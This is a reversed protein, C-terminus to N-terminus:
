NISFTSLIPLVSSQFGETWINHKVSGGIIIRIHYREMIYNCICELTVYTLKDKFEIKGLDLVIPICTRGYKAVAAKVFSIIEKIINGDLRYTNNKYYICGNSVNFRKPGATKNKELLLEEGVM